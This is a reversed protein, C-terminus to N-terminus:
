QPALYLATSIVFNLSLTRIQFLRFCFVKIICSKQLLFLEKGYIVAQCFKAREINSARNSHRRFLLNSLAKSWDATSILVIADVFRQRDKSSNGLSIVHM